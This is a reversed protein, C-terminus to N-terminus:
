SAAESVSELQCSTLYAGTVRDGLAASALLPELTSQIFNKDGM